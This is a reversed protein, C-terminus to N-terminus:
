QRAALLSSELVLVSDAPPLRGEGPGVKDETEKRRKETVLVCLWPLCAHSPLSSAFPEGSVASPKQATTRVLAPVSGLSLASMSNM